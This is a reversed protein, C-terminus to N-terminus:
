GSAHEVGILSAFKLRKRDLWVTAKSYIVRYLRRCKEGSLRWKWIRDKSSNSYAELLNAQEGLVRLAQILPERHVDCLGIEVVSRQPKTVWGDGDILGRVMHRELSKEVKPWKGEKKFADWGNQLLGHALEACTIKLVACRSVSGKYTRIEHRIPHSSGLANRLKMLHDEDKVGLGVVFVRERRGNKYRRNVLCGDALLFGFWYAKEETDINDFYHEDVDHTALLERTTKKIGARAVRDDITKRSCGLVKAAKNASMTAYAAFITQDSVVTRFRTRVGNKKLIVSIRSESLGFEGHLESILSGDKYKQCITQDRASM